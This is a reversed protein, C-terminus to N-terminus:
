ARTVERELNALTHVMSTQMRAPFGPLQITVRPMTAYGWVYSHRVLTGAPRPILEYRWRQGGILKRGRLEGVSAWAILQNEAHEVVTNVSRYSGGRQKMGMSFRSGLVLREPGEAAGQLMGSGDFAAHRHIDTLVDFIAAADARILRETHEALKEARPDREKVDM